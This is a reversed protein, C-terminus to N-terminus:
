QWFECWGPWIGGLSSPIAEGSWFPSFPSSRPRLEWVGCISVCTDISKLILSVSPLPFLALNSPHIWRLPWPRCPALYEHCCIADLYGSPFYCGQGTTFLVMVIYLIKSSSFYSYPAWSLFAYIVCSFSSSTSSFFNNSENNEHSTLDYQCFHLM